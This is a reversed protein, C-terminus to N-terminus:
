YFKSCSYRNYATITGYDYDLSHYCVLYSRGLRRFSCPFHIGTTWSLSGCRLDTVFWGNDMLLSRVQMQANYRTTYYGGGHAGSSAALALALVSVMAVLALLKKM